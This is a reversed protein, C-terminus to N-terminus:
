AIVGDYIIVARNAWFETSVTRRPDSFKLELFNLSIVTNPATTQLYTVWKDNDLPLTMNLKEVTKIM